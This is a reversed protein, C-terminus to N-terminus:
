QHIITFTGGPMARVQELMQLRFLMDSIEPYTCQMERALRNVNYGPNNEILGLLKLQPESLELALTGQTGEVRRRPWGMADVFEDACTLLQARQGSILSNCGRSMNDFTRGPVAFVERNYELAMTATSMAGGKCDSEVVITARSLGAIIRNRGLFNARHVISESHYETVLAGGASLIEMADHRHEAPYITNLPVAMVAITPVGSKLAARHAAIDIGYALGSVVVLDDVTEALERIFRATFEQGYATCRRTGVVSIPHVANLDADGKTYLMVPADECESLLHPYRPDDAFLCKLGHNTVFEAERQARDLLRQRYGAECLTIDLGTLVHLDHPNMEFYTQPCGGLRTLLEMGSVAHIGRMMSFAIRYTLADDTM